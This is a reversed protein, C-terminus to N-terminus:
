SLPEFRLSFDVATVHKTLAGISIYDVGTKAVNRLNKLTINGSAELSTRGQAMEVARFLEDISFNDLLIRDPDAELAEELEKLNEVEVEVPLDRKKAQQIANTISGNALIHNEKILFGDYLGVRHNMGGGCTVAYKQALRLGPLTKRTDLLRAGTGRIQRVYESVMTATGSLTQLFNIATREGTLLARTCGTLVCLKQNVHITDGDEVKWDIKIDTDLQRFSEDFWAKGCLVADERSILTAKSSAGEDLLSATIDETGVDEKLALAVNDKIVKESVEM